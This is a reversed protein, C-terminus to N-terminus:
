HSPTLHVQIQEFNIIGNGLLPISITMQEDFIETLKEKIINYRAMPSPSCVVKWRNPLRDWSVSPRSKLDFILQLINSDPLISLTANLYKRIVIDGNIDTNTDILYEIGYKKNYPRHKMTKLLMENRILRRVLYDNEAVPLLIHELDINELNLTRTFVLATSYDKALFILKNNTLVYPNYLNNQICLQNIKQYNEKYGKVMQYNIDYSVSYASLKKLDNAIYLFTEIM